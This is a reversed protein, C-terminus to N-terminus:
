IDINLCLKYFYSKAVKTAKYVEPVTEGAEFHIIVRNLIDKSLRRGITTTSPRPGDVHKCNKTPHSAHPERPLRTSSIESVVTITLPPQVVM